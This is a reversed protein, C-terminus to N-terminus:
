EILEGLGFLELAREDGDIGDTALDFDCVPDEGVFGIIQESEFANLRREIGIDLVIEAGRGFGFEDCSSRRFLGRGCRSACRDRRM